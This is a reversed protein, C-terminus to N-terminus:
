EGKLYVLWEIAKKKDDPEQERIEAAFAAHSRNIESIIVAISPSKPHRYKQPPHTVDAGVIMTESDVLTPIDAPNLSWNAGGLRANVKM